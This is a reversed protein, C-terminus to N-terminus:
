RSLVESRRLGSESQSEGSSKEAEGDLFRTSANKEVGTRSRSVTAEGWERKLASKVYVCNPVTDIVKRGKGEEAKPKL